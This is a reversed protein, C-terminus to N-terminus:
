NLHQFKLRRKLSSKTESVFCFDRNSIEKEKEQKSDVIIIM